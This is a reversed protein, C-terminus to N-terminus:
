LEDCWTRVPSIMHRLRPEERELEPMTDLLQEYKGALVGLRMDPVGADVLSLLDLAADLQLNAYLPLIELWRALDREEEVIDRLHTGADEMLMWGRELDAALLPPVLEPRRAALIEVLAAEYRLGQENAKFYVDGRETPVRLVTSWRQVHVQEIPGTRDVHQEIWARAGGLWSPDTWEM